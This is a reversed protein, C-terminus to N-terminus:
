VMILGDRIAVSTLEAAKHVQLKKMLRSKHNDITSEALQLQEACDRVSHGKALLKIVDLERSTLSAVSPKGHAQELRWGRPTRRVRDACTPDFVREGRTAVRITAAFLALFGSQRTMYSMSPMKLISALRGEHLRSDLVITHRVSSQQIAEAARQVVDFAMSPDIVLVHPMLRRCKAMGLDIDSSTEIPGIRQQGSYLMSLADCDLSNALMLVVRIEPAKGGNGDINSGSLQQIM